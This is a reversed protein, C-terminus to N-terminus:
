KPGASRQLRGDDGYQEECLEAFVVHAHEKDEVRAPRTQIMVECLMSPTYATSSSSGSTNSYAYQV